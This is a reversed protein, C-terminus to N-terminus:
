RNDRNEIHFFELETTLDKTLVTITENVKEVQQYGSVNSAVIEQIDTLNSSVTNALGLQDEAATGVNTNIISIEKVKNGIEGFLKAFRGMLEQSETVMAVNSQMIEDADQSQQQLVQIEHQVGVTAQQTKAALSRVEDAVVAFGRGYEGARAAEIAANLALLNIQDSISDIVEVVSSIKESHVKLESIKQSSETIATIMSSSTSESQRLTSIADELANIAAHTATDAQQASRAVESSTESLNTAAGAVAIVKGMEDEANNLSAGIADSIRSQYGSLSTMSAHSSSVISAINRHLTDLGDVIDDFENNSREIRENQSFVGKSMDLIWRNIKGLNRLERRVILAVVFMLIVTLSLLLIVQTVLQARTSNIENDLPTIAWLHKGDALQNRTVSFWDQAPNQYVLPETGVDKFAPRLDFLNQSISATNTSDTAFVDGKDNTILFEDASNTIFRGPDMDFLLVGIRQNNHSIPVSLTIVFDGTAISQYVASMYFSEGRQMIDTYWPRMLQKPNQQQHIDLNGYSNGNADSVIVEKLNYANALHHIDNLLEHEAGQKVEYLRVSMLTSVTDMLNRYNEISATYQETLASVNERNAQVILSDRDAKM